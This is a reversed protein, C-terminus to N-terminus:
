VSLSPEARLAPQHKPLAPFSRRRPRFTYSLQTVTFIGNANNKSREKDGITPPPTAKGTQASVRDLLLRVKDLLGALPVTATAYQGGHIIKGARPIEHSTRSLAVADFALLLKDVPIVKESPIFRIPIYPNEFKSRSSPSRELAHLRPHLEPLAVTYDIIVRHRCNQLAQRPPIGVGSTM